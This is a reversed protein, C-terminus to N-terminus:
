SGERNEFFADEQNSYKFSVDSRVSHRFDVNKLNCDTFDVRELVSGIFRSNYLDSAKFSVDRCLPLDNFNVQLFVSGDFVCREIRSGAMVSNLTDLREATCDEFSCFDFFCMRFTAETMTINRFSCRSFDCLIFTKKGLDLAAFEVLPFSLGTFVDGGSIIRGVEALYEDPDPLHRFCLNRFSVSPNRCGEVSCRNHIFMRIYRYGFRPV